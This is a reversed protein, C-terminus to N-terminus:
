SWNTGGLLLMALLEVVVIYETPWKAILGRIDLFHLLGLDIALRFILPFLSTRTTRKLMYTLKHIIIEISILPYLEPVIKYEIHLFLLSCSGIALDERFAYLWINYTIHTNSFFFPINPLKNYLTLNRRVIMNKKIKCSQEVWIFYQM